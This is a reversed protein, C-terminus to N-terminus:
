TLKQLVPNAKKGVPVFPKGQMAQVFLWTSIVAYLLAALVSARVSTLLYYSVLPLVQLAHMGFFHAIRLDGYNRNWGALPLVEGGDPGGVSHAMRSGMALGELSFLVFLVIGLRIGWRYAPELDTLPNTFFHVGIYGTWVSIGVAALGMMGYLVAYVPTSVNFHSAQGRAAQFLIYANEFTFLAIMGWSYWTVARNDGLYHMYWAMSWLLLVSSAFFRFPKLWANAGQVPLRWALVLCFVAALLCIAGYYFLPENRDKLTNLFSEM